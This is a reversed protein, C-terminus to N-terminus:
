QQNGVASQRSSAPNRWVMALWPQEALPRGTPRYYHTIEHFGATEFFTRWRNLDLYAGFRDGQWGERNDGRPNSCFLVGSPVLSARLEALVRALEQTPIHFLSANAFVGDFEAEPLSLDLFDQCWVEGPFRSRAMEVFKPSGDLGVVRHGEASLALLDRGPGCGFDLIRYPKPGEIHDLLAAYNQTVDHTKTGEWFAEASETYHTLTTRTIRELDAKSHSM